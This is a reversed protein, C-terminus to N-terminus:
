FIVWSAIRVSEQVVMGVWQAVSANVKVELLVGVVADKAMAPTADALTSLGQLRASLKVSYKQVAKVGADGALSRIASLATPTTLSKAMYSIAKMTATIKGKSEREDALNFTKTLVLANKLVVRVSYVGYCTKHNLVFNQMGQDLKAVRTGISVKEIDELVVGDVSILTSCGDYYSLSKSKIDPIDAYASISFMVLLTVVLLKVMRM